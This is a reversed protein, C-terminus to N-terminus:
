FVLLIYLSVSVYSSTTEINHKPEALPIFDASTGPTPLKGSPKTQTGRPTAPPHALRGSPGASGSPEEVCTEYSSVDLDIVDVGAGGDGVAVVEEEESDSLTICLSKKKVRSKAKNSAKSPKVPNTNKAELAPYPNVVVADEDDSDNNHSPETDASFAISCRKIFDNFSESNNDEVIGTKSAAWRHTDGTILDNGVIALCNQCSHSALFGSIIEEQLVITSTVM